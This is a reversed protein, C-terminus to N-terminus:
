NQTDEADDLEFAAAGDVEVGEADELTYVLGAGDIEGQDDATFFGELSGSGESERGTDNDTIEVSDFDGAFTAAEGNLAVGEAEADWTRNAITLNVDADVTQANFDASLSASGLVGTHGQNDTPNTNGVLSFEAEGTSPLVPTVENTTLIWHASRDDFREVEVGESNTVTAAGNSWRGWYLGTDADFGRNNPNATGQTYVTDNATFARLTGNGNLEINAEAGTASLLDGAFTTAVRGSVGTPPTPTPQEVDPIDNGAELSITEGSENVAEKVVVPEPSDSDESSTVAASSSIAIPAATLGSVFGANGPDIDLSGGENALVVGGEAVNLYLGKGLDGCNVECFVATYDTGRIGITAVPTKVRYNKKNKKGILGSISRFGGRVLRYFGKEEKNNITQAVTNTSPNYVYEEIMFETNPKLDFIAGDKMRLQARGNVGTLITDGSDFEMGRNLTSLEGQSSKLQVKGYVFLSTGAEALLGFSFGMGMLLAVGKIFITNSRLTNM